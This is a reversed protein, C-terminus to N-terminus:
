ALLARTRVFLFIVAALICHRQNQCNAMMVITFVVRVVYITENNETAHLVSRPDIFSYAAYLVLFYPLFFIIFFISIFQWYVRFLLSLM